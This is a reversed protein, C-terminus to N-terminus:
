FLKLNKKFYIYGTYITIISAVTLGINGLYLIIKTNFNQHVILFGLSSMQILTKWKALTTVLLTQSSHLFFDRLGSVIIERLIIVLAPYVFVGSINKNAILVIIISVVLIKDAIPDLFKGFNSELDFKRAFYGDFFDSFCATIYLSLAIWHYKETNIEICVIISPILIIRFITLFNSINKLKFM